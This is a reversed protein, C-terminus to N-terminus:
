VGGGVYATETKFVRLKAFQVNQIGLGNLESIILIPAFQGIIL